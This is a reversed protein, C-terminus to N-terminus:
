TRLTVLYSIVGYIGAMALLTAVAAFLGMLWAYLRPNAVSEEIVEQMTAVRFLAQSPSVDRVAARIGGILAETPGSGRVVLTTGLRRIQAFNQALTYYIEPKARVRLEAQRVDGVVGIITGRDLRRGVPDENQFYLRALVENIVIVSP